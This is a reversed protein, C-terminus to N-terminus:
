VCPVKLQKRTQDFPTLDDAGKDRRAIFFSVAKSTNVTEFLWGQYKKQREANFIAGAPSVSKSLTDTVAGAVGRVYNMLVDRKRIREGGAASKAQDSGDLAVEKM